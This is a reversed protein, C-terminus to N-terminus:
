PQGSGYIYPKYVTSKAPFDGFICDYVTYIYQEPWGQMDRYACLGFRFPTGTGERMCANVCMCVYMVYIVYM